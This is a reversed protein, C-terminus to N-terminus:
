VFSKLNVGEGGKLLILQRSTVMNMDLLTNYNYKNLVFVHEPFRLAFRYLTRAIYCGISKKNFVYGLGAVMATSPINCIKSAITGYINPKITYHFIYNPLEKKYIKLLRFFYLLDKIPNMGARSMDLPIYTINSHTIEWPCNLPAVLVVQFGNLAYHMIVDKRFNLLEKLSNDCFLIKKKM